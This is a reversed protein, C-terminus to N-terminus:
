GEIKLFTLGSIEYYNPLSDKIREKLQFGVGKSSKKTKDLIVPKFNNPLKYDYIFELPAKGIAYDLFALVEEVGTTTERIYRQPIYNTILPMSCIMREQVSYSIVETLGSSTTKVQAEAKQKNMAFDSFDKLPTQTIYMEGSPSDATYTNSGTLDVGAKFGLLSFVSVASQNGTDVYLEFNNDASITFKMTDRDLEVIYEQNGAENMAAAVKNKFDSITFSGITVVAARQAPDIYAEGFNLYKNDITISHGYIFASYNNLAM